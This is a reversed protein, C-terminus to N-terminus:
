GNLARDVQEREYSSEFLSLITEENVLDSVFPAMGRAVELRASRDCVGLAGVVHNCTIKGGAKAVGALIEKAALPQDLSFSVAALALAMDEPSFTSALSSNERMWEVIAETRGFSGAESLCAALSEGAAPVGCTAEGATPASSPAPPASPRPVANNKCTYDMSVIKALPSVAIDEDDGSGSIPVASAVPIPPVEAISPLITAPSVLSGAVAISRSAGSSGGHGALERDEESSKKALRCCFCCICGLTIGCFFLIGLVLLVVFLEPRDGGGERKNARKVFSDTVEGLKYRLEDSFYRTISRDNTEAIFQALNVLTWCEPADDDIISMGMWYDINGFRIEPEIEWNLRQDGLARIMSQM